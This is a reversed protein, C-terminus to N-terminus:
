TGRGLSLNHTPCTPIRTAASFQYWAYDGQPCEFKPATRPDFEGPPLQYDPETMAKLLEVHGPLPRYSRFLLGLLEEPSHKLELFQKIWARTADERALLNLILNDVNKRDREVTLLAALERDLREAEPGVLEKLLPRITRAGELVDERQYM